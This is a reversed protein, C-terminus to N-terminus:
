RSAQRFAMRTVTLIVPQRTLPPRLKPESGNRALAIDNFSGGVQRVPDSESRNRGGVLPDDAKVAGLHRRGRGSEISGSQCRSAGATQNGRGKGTAIRARTACWGIMM